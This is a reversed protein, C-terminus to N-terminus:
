VHKKGGSTFYSVLCLFVFTIVGAILQEVIRGGYERNAIGAFGPRALRRSYNGETPFEVPDLFPSFTRVSEDPWLCDQALRRLAQSPSCRLNFAATQVMGKLLILSIREYGSGPDPPLPHPNRLFQTLWFRMESSSLRGAMSDPVRFTFTAM